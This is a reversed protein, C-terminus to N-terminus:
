VDAHHQLHHRNNSNRQGKEAGATGGNEAHINGHSQYQTNVTVVLFSIPYKIIGILPIKCSSYFNVFSAQKKQSFIAYYLFAHPLCRDARLVHFSDFRHLVLKYDYQIKASLIVLQNCPTDPLAAYVTFDHPVCRRQLFQSGPIRNAQDKGSTRVADIVFLRRMNCLFNKFHANRNQTNAIATLKHCICQTSGNRTCRHPFITLSHGVILGFTRQKCIQRLLSNGPHTVGIIDTCQRFAKNGNRMRVFTRSGGHCTCLPFQIPYLEMRFDVVCFVSNSHQSVEQKPNTAAHSVPGHLIICLGGNFLNPFFDAISFDQQCQGATYIAGNCSGQQGFCNAIFQGTDKYVVAEQPFLFAVFHFSCKCIPVNTKDPNICLCQKHLLQGTYGIRFPLPFDNALFENPYEFPFGLLNTCHVIKYLAGNIRVHDFASAPICSHDLGMMIYATQRIIHVELLDNFRQPQQKLIFYPLKTNCKTQRFFQNPPLREWARSQGDSDNSFNGIFFKGNQLIGIENEPLFNGLSSQIAGNM